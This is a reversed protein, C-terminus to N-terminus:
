RHPHSGLAAFRAHHRHEVLIRGAVSCSLVSVDADIGDPGGAGADEPLTGDGLDGARQAALGEPQLLRGAFRLPSPDRVRGGLRAGLIAPRQPDSIPWIPGPEPTRPHVAPFPPAVNPSM